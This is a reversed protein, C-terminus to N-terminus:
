SRGIKSHQSSTQAMQPMPHISGMLAHSESSPKAKKLEPLSKLSTLQRFIIDPM